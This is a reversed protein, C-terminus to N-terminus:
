NIVVNVRFYREELEVIYNKTNSTVTAKKLLNLTIGGISTTSLANLLQQSSFSFQAVNNTVAAYQLISTNNGAQILIALSDANIINGLTLTLGANRNIIKPVLITDGLKPYGQTYSFNFATVSATGTASLSFNPGAIQFTSDAYVVGIPNTLDRKLIKSNVTVTGVNIPYVTQTPPISVGTNFFSAGVQVFTASPISLGLLTNHLANFQGYYLTPTPNLTPNTAAPTTAASKSDKKCATTFAVVILACLM